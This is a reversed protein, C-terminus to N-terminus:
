IVSLKPSNCRVEALPRIPTDFSITALEFCSLSGRYPIQYWQSRLINLIGELASKVWWHDNRLVSWELIVGLHSTFYLSAIEKNLPSLRCSM